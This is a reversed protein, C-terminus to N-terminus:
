VEFDKFAIKAAEELGEILYKINRANKQVDRLTLEARQTETQAKGNKQDKEKEAM